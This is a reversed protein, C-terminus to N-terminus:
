LATGNGKRTHPPAGGVDAAATTAYGPDFTSLFSAGGFFSDMGSLTQAAHQRQASWTLRAGRSNQVKRLAGNISLAFPGKLLPCGGLRTVLTTAFEKLVM